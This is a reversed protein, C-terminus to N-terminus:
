SRVTIRFDLSVRHVESDTVFSDRDNELSAYLVDVGQMDGNHGDLLAIVDRALLRAEGYSDGYCDIQFRPMRLGPGQAHHDQPGSIKQIVIYPAADGKHAMGYRVRSGARAFVAADAILHAPLAEEVGM